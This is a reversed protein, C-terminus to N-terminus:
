NWKFIVYKPSIFCTRLFLILMERYVDRNQTGDCTHILNSINGLNQIKRKFQLLEKAMGVLVTYGKGQSSLGCKKTYATYEYYNKSMFSVLHLKFAVGTALFCLFFNIKVVNREIM